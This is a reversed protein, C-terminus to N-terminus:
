RGFVSRRAIAILGILGTGFLLAASPIPVPAVGDFASGVHAISVSFKGPVENWNIILTNYYASVNPTPIQPSNDVLHLFIKDAYDAPDALSFIDGNGVKQLAFNVVQGAAFAGWTGFLNTSPVIENFGTGDVFGFNYPVSGNIQIGVGSVMNDADKGDVMIVGGPDTVLLAFAFNVPLFLFFVSVMLGSLKPYAIM